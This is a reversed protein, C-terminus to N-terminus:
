ETRFNQSWSRSHDWHSSELKNKDEKTVQIRKFVDRGTQNFQNNYCTTYGGNLLGVEFNTTRM